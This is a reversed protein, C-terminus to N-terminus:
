GGGGWSVCMCGGGETIVNAQRAHGPSPGRGDSCSQGITHSLNINRGQWRSNYSQLTSDYVGARRLAQCWTTLAMSKLWKLQKTARGRDWISYLLTRM